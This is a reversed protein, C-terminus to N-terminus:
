LGLVDRLEEELGALRARGADGEEQQSAGSKAEAVCKACRCEGFNWEKLNRRRTVVPDLPNVYSV